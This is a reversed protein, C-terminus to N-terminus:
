PTLDMLPRISWGRWCEQAVPSVFGISPEPFILWLGLRNQYVGKSFLTFGGELNDFGLVIDSFKGNRDKTELATITCGLSIVEVKLSDSRLLFKEVSGKGDPLDGFKERKVEIM